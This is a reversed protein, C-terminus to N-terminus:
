LPFPETIMEFRDTLDTRVSAGGSQHLSKIEYKKKQSCLFEIVRWKM